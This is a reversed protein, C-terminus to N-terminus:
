HSATVHFVYTTRAIMWENPAAGVGRYVFAARLNWAGATTLPLHVVGDGDATLSLSGNAAAASAAAPASGITDAAPGAFIGINPVARGDGMIRVHLSDGVHLHAPDGIPIFQLPLGTSVAYARPGGRGVEVVATAYSTARYVVSVQGDLANRGELRAAESAGGEAKLFRLMNAPTSRTPTSTLTVAIVYQGPAPAKEQLRLSNGEVALQAISSRSTAGILVAEAVRSPQVASGEPFRTGARGSAHIMGDSGAVFMDPIIWFDHASATAAGVLSAVLTPLLARRFTNTPYRPRQRLFPM